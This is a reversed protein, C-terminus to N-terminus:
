SSTPAKQIVRGCWIYKLFSTQSTALLQFISKTMAQFNQPFFGKWNFWEILLIDLVHCKFLSEIPISRKESFKFSVYKSVLPHFKYNLYYFFTHLFIQTSSSKQSAIFLGCYTCYVLGFVHIM